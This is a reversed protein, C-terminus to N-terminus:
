KAAHNTYNNQQLVIKQLLMKAKSLQSKSTGETIKLLASIEKHGYGEIVFLNFVTRYGIPLLELCKLITKVELNNIFNEELLHAEPDLEEVVTLFRHNSRISILCENVMIKKMWAIAAIDNKWDFRPLSKYIKLFGNMLAEEADEKQKLYRICVLFFRNAFLDFLYRQATISGNACESFVQKLEM